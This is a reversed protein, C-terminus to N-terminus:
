QIIFNNIEVTGSGITVTGNITTFSPDTYFVSDYGGYLAVSINNDFSLDENFHLAQSLIANGDNAYEYADQISTSRYMHHMAPIWVPDLPISEGDLLITGHGGVAAFAQNTSDYAVAQLDYATGSPRYTWTSLDSAPATLIAGTDGVAVFYDISNVTGFAVGNLIEYGSDAARVTNWVTGNTSSLILGREGVAVFTGSGYGIGYLHEITGTNQRTWTSADPSTLL